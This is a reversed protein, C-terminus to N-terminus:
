GNLLEELDFKTGLCDRITVQPGSHHSIGANYDHAYKPVTAEGRAFACGLVTPRYFCPVKAAEVLGWFRLKAYDGNAPKNERIDVWGGTERYRRVIWVLYAAMGAYIQRKYRQGHRDCCPCETGEDVAGFFKRRAVALPTAGNTKSM